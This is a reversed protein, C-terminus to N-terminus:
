VEAKAQQAQQLTAELKGKAELQNQYTRQLESYYSEQQAVHAQLEKGKAAKANLQVTLETTLKEAEEAEKESARYANLLKAEQEKFVGIRTKIDEIQKQKRAVEEKMKVAKEQAEACKAHKAKLANLKAKFEDLLEKLTANSQQKAEIEQALETSSPSSESLDMSQRSVVFDFSSQSQSPDFSSLSQRQSAFESHFASSFDFESSSPKPKPKPESSPQSPSTAFASPISPQSVHPLDFASQALVSPRSGSAYTNFIAPSFESNAAKPPPDNLGLFDIPEARAQPQQLREKAKPRKTYLEYRDFAAQISDNTEILATVRSTNGSNVAEAIEAELMSKMQKLETMLEAITDGPAEGSRLMDTLLQITNKCQDLESPRKEAQLSQRESRVAQRPEAQMEARPHSVQQAQRVDPKAVLSASSPFTVGERELTSYMRYFESPKKDSTLGFSKAWLKIYALLCKLFEASAASQEGVQPGFIGIGRSESRSYKNHRALIIFRRTIKKCAFLLYQTSGTMMGAHLLKLAVVKQTPLIKKNKITKKVLSIADKCERESAARVAQSFQASYDRSTDSFALNLIDTLKQM